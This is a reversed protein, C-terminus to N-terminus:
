VFVVLLNVMPVQLDEAASLSVEEYGWHDSDAENEQKVPEAVLEEHRLVEEM